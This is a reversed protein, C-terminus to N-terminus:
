FNVQFKNKIWEHSVEQFEGNELFIMRDSISPAIFVDHTIIILTIGYKKSLNHVLEFIIRSNTVDLGSTPEDLFIIEPKTILARALAVRKQMGGSIESVYLNKIEPKLGVSILAEDCLKKLELKNHTKNNIFPFLINEEIMMSDFLANNQFLISIKKYFERYDSQTKIEKNNCYFEGSDRSELGILTKLFVSKGSGSGGLITIIEGKNINININKLVANKNFSKCLNKIEIKYDLTKVSNM